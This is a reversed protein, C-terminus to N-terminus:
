GSTGDHTGELSGAADRPTTLKFTIRPASEASDIALDDHANLDNLDAQPSSTFIRPSAKM